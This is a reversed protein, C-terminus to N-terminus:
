VCIHGENTGNVIAINPAATGIRNRETILKEDYVRQAIIDSYLAKGNWFPILDLLEDVENDEM